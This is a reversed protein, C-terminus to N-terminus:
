VAFAPAGARMQRLRAIRAEMPPHTSFLGALGGATLPNVIYLSATAPEVHGPLREAAMSLRGLASALAEPDGTLRAATADAVFERARSIALQVLSAAIPAIIAFALAGIPNGGEEDDQSGGFFASFQLFNAVGGILAAIGAAVTAITVDRNTIHAIEHAIVGKVERRPLVRLLGTTVAVAGHAPNRGTAFANAYDAEIVYLKPVPIRAARALEAVMAELDPAEGPEVPRAGSTRLVLRDSFFWMGVNMALGVIGFLWAYAPAAFAGAGVLLATLAGLLVVTKLQSIVNREEVKSAVTRAM